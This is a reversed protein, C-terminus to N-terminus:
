AAIASLAQTELDPAAAPLVRWWPEKRFWTRQRRAYQRTRLAVEHISSEITMSGHICLAAERTGLTALLPHEAPLQHALARTEDLLGSEFMRRARAHIRPELWPLPADLSLWVADACVLRAPRSLMTGISRDGARGGLLTIELARLVRAPNRADLGVVADPDLKRLRDIMLALGGQALEGELQTRLVPDAPPQDDLGLRYTRLYLGTGGVVVAVKNRGHVSAVAQDALPLWAGASLTTAPAVVGFLHHPVRAREDESPGASAIGLGAYDQRSDDCILEGLLREALFLALASKGSATPGALVITRPTM